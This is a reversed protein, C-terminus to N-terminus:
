LASDINSSSSIFQKTTQNYYSSNKGDKIILLERNISTSIQTYNIPLVLNLELDLLGLKKDKKLLFGLSDFPTIQDYENKLIWNGKKDIIGWQGDKKAIANENIFSFAFDFTYPIVLKLDTNSYGWKDRKKVAIYNDTKYEGVDQFIAPFMKNGVSDIIGFKDKLLYKAYQMQFGGWLSVESKYDFVLPIIPLAAKNLYGYKNGKILLARDNTLKGIKDYEFPLITAGKNDIIGFLSDKRAVFSQYDNFPELWSFEASVIFDGRTNIIAKKDELEVIAFGDRFDTAYHLMLPISIKGEKNYYGYNVSDAVLILGNKVGSVIEFNIPIIEKNSRDIMGWLGDKSVAALGENFSNADEYILPITNEGSKNIFGAMGDKIVLALGESFNEVFDYQAKILTNGNRDIFGWLGEKKFALFEQVALKMDVLLEDVFPYDPYDIRFEVLKEPKYDLTYIKYLKRWAKEINPNNSNEKIFQYLNDVSMEKTYVSFLSDQARRLLPSEPYNKIFNQFDIKKGNSTNEEFLREELRNKAETAQTAEPYQKLFQRYSLSTNETKSSDFAINNRIKIADNKFYSDKHLNIYAQLSEITAIKKVQNFKKSDISDKLKEISLSDIGLTNFKSKLKASAIAYNSDAICIFKYASDLNHFPNDEREYIFSLGYTAAAVKKKAAKEFLRKAKFFNFQNLAKYGREVRGAFSYLILLNLTIILLTKKM